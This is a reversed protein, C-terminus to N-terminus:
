WPLTFFVTKYVIRIEALIGAGTVNQVIGVPEQFHFSIEFYFKRTIQM